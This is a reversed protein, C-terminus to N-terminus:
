LRELICNYPISLTKVKLPQRHYNICFRILWRLFNFGIQGTSHSSNTTDIPLHEKKTQSLDYCISCTDKEKM